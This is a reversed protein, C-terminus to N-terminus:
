EEDEQWILKNTSGVISETVSSGVPGFSLCIQHSAYDNCCFGSFHYGSTKIDLLIPKTIKGSSLIEYLLKEDETEPTFPTGSTKDTLDLNIIQYGSPQYKKAM